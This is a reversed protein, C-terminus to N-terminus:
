ASSQGTYALIAASLGGQSCVHDLVDGHIMAQNGEFHSNTVTATGTGLAAGGGNSYKARGYVFM